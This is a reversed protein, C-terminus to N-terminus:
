ESGNRLLTDMNLKQVQEVRGDTQRVKLGWLRDSSSLVKSIVDNVIRRTKRELSDVSKSPAVALSM